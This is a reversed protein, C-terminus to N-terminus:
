QPSVCTMGGVWCIRTHRCHSFALHRLDSPHGSFTLALSVRHIPLSNFDHLYARASLPKSKLNLSDQVVRAYKRSALRSDGESKAGTVVLGSVVLAIAKPDRNRIILIFRRYWAHRYNSIFPLLLSTSLFHFANLMTNWFWVVGARIFRQVASCLRPSFLHHHATSNIPLSVVLSHVALSRLVPSCYSFTVLTSATIRSGAATNAPFTTTPSLLHAICAGTTV